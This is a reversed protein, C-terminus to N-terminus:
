HHYNFMKALLRIYTYSYYQTCLTPTPTSNHTDGCGADCDRHWQSSTPSSLLAQSSNALMSRLQLFLPLIVFYSSCLALYPQSNHHGPVRTRTLHSSTMSIRVIDDFWRHSMPVMPDGGVLSVGTGSLHTQGVLLGASRNTPRVSRTPPGCSM